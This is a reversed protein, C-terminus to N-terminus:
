REEGELSRKLRELAHDWHQAILDLQARAERVQEPDYRWIQERGHRSSRALGARALVRLHKTVAQRTVQTGAALRTISMPGDDSLRALLLLRTEDGLAFFVPAARRLRSYSRVPM